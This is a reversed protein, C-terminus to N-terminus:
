PNKNDKLHAKLLNKEQAKNLITLVRAKSSHHSLLEEFEEGLEDQNYGKKLYSAVEKLRVEFENIDEFEFIRKYDLAKDEPKFIDIKETLLLCNNGLIEWFRATDFGGGSVSIGVKTRSLIDYFEDPDNTKATHCVFQNEKCFKELSGRVQRRLPPCDEQGFVCTFDIDKKKGAEYHKIYTSEIGFPFPSIGDIYPKERRFYLVCKDLMESDVAGMGEYSLNFVQKEIEKDLRRNGGLESGDIFVTKKWEGIERALDFDTNKKGWVFLIIDSLKAFRIFEKKSLVVDAKIPVRSSPYKSSIYFELGKGEQQLLGLGDLVTNALYDEKRQPTIVAIRLLRQDTYSKHNPFFISRADNEYDGVYGNVDYIKDDLFFVKKKILSLKTFLKFLYFDDTVIYHFRRDSLFRYIVSLYFKWAVQGKFAIFTHECPLKDIPSKGFVKCRVGKDALRKILNYINNTKGSTIDGALFGMIKLQEGLIERAFARQKERYARAKKDNGFTKKGVHYVYAKKAMVCRYGANHACISYADDEGYGIGFREDLYGIKDMLERKILMCFGICRGMGIYPSPGNPIDSMSSYGFHNSAPNVLGIDSELEAIEIMSSLWNPYVVTDNSLLCVYKGNSAKMGKNTAKIYGENVDNRILHVLDKHEESFQRLYEATEKESGNDIVILRYPHDTYELVSDLCNKTMELQNWAPLIIDCHAM